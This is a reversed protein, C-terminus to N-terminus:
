FHFGFGLLFGHTDLNFAFDGRSYEEHLYRYGLTASCWDTFRCSVGAFAEGAIDASVGFGGVLGKV